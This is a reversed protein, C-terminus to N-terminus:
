SLGMLRCVASTSAQKLWDTVLAEFM